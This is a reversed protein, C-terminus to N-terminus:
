RRRTQLAVALLAVVTVALGFGSQAGTETRPALTPNSVTTTETTSPETKPSETTTEDDSARVTLNRRVTENQFELVVEYEGPNTPTDLPFVVTGDYGPKIDPAFAGSEVTENTGATVVRYDFTPEVTDIGENVVSLRARVTDTRSDILVRRLEIPTEDVVLTGADHRVGDVTLRYDVHTGNSVNSLDVSVAWDSTNSTVSERTLVTGNRSLTLELPPTAGDARHGTITVNATPQVHTMSRIGVAAVPQELDFEVQRRIQGDVSDYSGPLVLEAATWYDATYDPLEHGDGFLLFIEDDGGHVLEARDASTAICPARLQVFPAPETLDSSNQVRDGIDPARVHVVLSGELPVTDLRQTTTPVENPSVNPSVGYAAISVNSANSKNPLTVGEAPTSFGPCTAKTQTSQDASMSAGTVAPLGALVLLVALVVHHLSSRM